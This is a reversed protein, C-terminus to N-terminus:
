RYVDKRHGIDLIIITEPNDSVSYLVRHPGSRIRFIPAEETGFGQLKKSGPPHPNGALAEIKRKVQRRMKPQLSELYTLAPEAYSFGYLASM